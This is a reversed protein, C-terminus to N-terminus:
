AGNSKGAIDSFLCELSFRMFAAVFRVDEFDLGSDSEGGVTFAGLGESNSL